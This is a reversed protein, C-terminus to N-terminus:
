AVYHVEMPIRRSQSNSLPYPSSTVDDDQVFYPQRNDFQADHKLKRIVAKGLVSLSM